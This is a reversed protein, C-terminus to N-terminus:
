VIHIGDNEITIKREKYLHGIARKFANKSMFFEEKIIAADSKDNYPLFGNNDKLMDYITLADQDMQIYSSETLSLTLKGDERVKNVFGSLTDGISLRNLMKEKPLLASYKNDVAVFAGLRDSLEYVTGTVFDNKSYPSDCRLLEYVKSTACLRGTRDIYLSVLVKDSINVPYKQEKFPLLLDKKLGWDLFAGIPTTDTVTLVAFNGLTIYPITTTAIIRDESDKYVFVEYEDGINDSDAIENNPLLVDKSDTGDKDRLYIGNATRRVAILKQMEGLRIM